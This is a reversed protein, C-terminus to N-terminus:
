KGYIHITQSCNKSVHNKELNCSASSNCFICITWILSRLSFLLSLRACTTRKGSIHKSTLVSVSASRISARSPFYSARLSLSRASARMFCTLTVWQDKATQTFKDEVKHSIIRFTNEHVFLKSFWFPLSQRFQLSLLFHHLQFEFLPLKSSLSLKIFDRM